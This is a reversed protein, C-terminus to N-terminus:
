PSPVFIVSPTGPALVPLDALWGKPIDQRVTEDVVSFGIQKSGIRQYVICLEQAGHTYHTAQM